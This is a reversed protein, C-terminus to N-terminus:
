RHSSARRFRRQTALWRWSAITGISAARIVSDFSGLDTLLTPVGGSGYCRPTTPLTTWPNPNNPALNIPPCDHGKFGRFENFWRNGRGITVSEIRGNVSDTAVIAGKLQSGITIPALFSDAIFDANFVGTEVSIRANVVGGAYVGRKLEFAEGIGVCSLSGILDGGAEVIELDNPYSPPESNSAPDYSSRIVARIDATSPAQLTVEDVTRIQRIREKAEIRTLPTVGPAKGIDGTSYITGISGDAIIDASIGESNANTVRIASISGTTRVSGRIANGARVQGISGSLGNVSTGLGVAGDINRGAQVRYVHLANAV